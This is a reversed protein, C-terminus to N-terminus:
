EQNDEADKKKRRKKRTKKEAYAEVEKQAKELKEDYEEIYSPITMFLHKLKRQPLDNSLEIVESGKLIRTGVFKEKVRYEM